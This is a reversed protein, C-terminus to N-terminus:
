YGSYVRRREYKWYGDRWVKQYHAERVLVRVRRGCDDYEYGYEAPVHVKEYYGPVWVKQRVWKYSGSSVRCSRTYSSSHRARRYSGVSSRDRYRSGVHVSFPGAQAHARVGRGLDVGLHVQAPLRSELGCLTAIVLLTARLM